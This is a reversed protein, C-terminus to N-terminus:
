KLIVRKFFWHLFGGILFGAVVLVFPILLAFFSFLGEEALHFVIAFSFYSGVLGILLGVYSGWLKFLNM